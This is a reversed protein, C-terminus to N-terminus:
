FLSTGVLQKGVTGGSVFDYSMAPLIGQVTVDATAWLPYGLETIHKSYTVTVRPIIAIPIDVVGPITLRIIKSKTNLRPRPSPFPNFNPSPNPTSFANPMTREKIEGSVQALDSLGVGPVLFEGNSGTSIISYSILKNLTHIWHGPQYDGTIINGALSSIAGSLTNLPKEAQVESFFGLKVQIELPKTSDVSWQPTGLKVALNISTKSATTGGTSAREVDSALRVLESFAPIKERLSNLNSEAVVTIDEMLPLRIFPDKFAAIRNIKDIINEYPDIICINM